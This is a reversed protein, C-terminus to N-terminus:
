IQAVFEVLVQPLKQLGLLRRQDLSQDTDCRMEAQEIEVRKDSRASSNEFRHSISRQTLEADLSSEHWGLIRIQDLDIDLKQHLELHFDQARAHRILLRDSRLCVVGDGLFENLVEVLVVFEMLREVGKKSLFGERDSGFDEVRYAFDAEKIEEGKHEFM